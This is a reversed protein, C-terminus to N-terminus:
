YIVAKVWNQRAHTHETAMAHAYESHKLREGGHTSEREGEREREREREQRRERM